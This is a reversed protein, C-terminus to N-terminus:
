PYMKTILRHGSSLKEDAVVTGGQVVTELWGSLWEPKGGDSEILLYVRGHLAGSPKYGYEAPMRGYTRNGYTVFLYDYAYPYIPPVFVYVSFPRGAANKYVADVASRMGSIKATGGADHLDYRYDESMRRVSGATQSVLLVSAAGFVIFGAPHGWRRRGWEWAMAFLLIYIVHAHILYYDWVTNDLLMFIGYSVALVVLLLRVFRKKAEDRSRRQYLVAAVILFGVVYPYAADPVFGNEHVFTNVANNVYSGTHDSVRAAPIGRTTKSAFVYSVLGKTAMFGHRAEFMLMPAFALVVAAVSVLWIKLNGIRYFLLFGAFLGIVMPAAIALEFHYVFGAAFLALPMYPWPKRVALFAFLLSAIIFPTSFHSNWIFRSQSAILPSIGVLLLVLLGGWKGLIRYGLVFALVLAAVGFVFAFVQGGYPDGGFLKYALAILYFYGPGHFLGTLGASGAGVEAGILTQKGKEVISYAALYDRGQDFGFLYNRNIVEVARLGIGWMFAAAVAVSYGFRKMM